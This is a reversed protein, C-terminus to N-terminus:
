HTRFLISPHEIKHAQNWFELVINRSYDHYYEVHQKTQITSDFHTYYTFMPISFVIGSRYLVEESRSYPYVKSLFFKNDLWFLKMLKQAYWRNMRYCTASHEDTQRKHLQFTIDHDPIFTIAMQLVDCYDPIYEQIDMWRFPWKEVTEFSIDDEVFWATEATSNTLWHRIALLHSITCAVEKTTIETGSYTVPWFHM